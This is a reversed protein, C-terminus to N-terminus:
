VRGEVLRELHSSVAPFSLLRDAIRHFHRSVKSHPHSILVPKQNRVAQCIREDWPVYGVLELERGLFRESVKALQRFVQVAEHETQANNILVLVEKQKDKSFLVKMLAYADVIATPDPTSVVIVRRAVMLLRIVNSSIGAASDILVYDYEELVANLENLLNTRRADGLDALAQLGSSAPIIDLGESVNLVISQLSRIGELVHGLHFRPTIDLLVDVNALGLDGDFIAVRKGARNLALALNVVVISKGVGGKGSTIAILQCHSPPRPTTREGILKRLTAAQDVVEM